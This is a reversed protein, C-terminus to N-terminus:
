LILLPRVLRGSDTNIIIEGYKENKGKIMAVNVFKEILGRRRLLKIRDVLDETHVYGILTGDLIVRHGEGFCLGCEVIGLNNPTFLRCSTTVCTTVALNKM